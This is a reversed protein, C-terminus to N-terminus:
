QKLIEGVKQIEEGFKTWNGDRLAQMATDYAATAQTVQNSKQAQEGTIKETSTEKEPQELQQESQTGFIKALGAELTTEMVIKNEYAVIVRKLEPIKGAEAKLYLPRVYLLSEEIPIVLLPGQIVQSGRQDWLSIQRSIEADQNIRAIIQKPGYILQQKPFRYVELKGYNEGDNRAVMWAAMNDKGRPIFPLMLIFEEREKGPLKMIMHRPAMPPIDGTTTETEGEVAIAPIDWQDEKNYFNGPEDMHYTSYIASQATFIDEPYRIHALLAEPMASLPQFMDPFIEAYTNIIPDKQDALYYTIKGHYADIVVKAANRIYNTPQGNIILPRAYPYNNSITYADAIWYLKGDVIVSYPDQDFTLFPATKAMREKITRYYMVRSENTMDESLLVKIENFRLAFLARKFFSDIPVGGDGAYTTSVNEEGKPYDFEKTKTKVFVHDNSLEGYYIEPRTVALEQKEAVPPLNKVFLVPLGEATVQNVPGAAAGYGHTFILRENIWNKNPLNEASLERPSLMIQRPQGDIIYRDNDVSNFAYYTRIEQIQSFTSLLPGRDWLRVNKITLDNAAIDDATLPKDGSLEHKTVTQLGFADRTAAINQKIFPTEKALENPAVIFQQYLPPVFITAIGVLATLVISAFLPARKNTIGYVVALLASIGFLIALAKYLPILITVDSYAAGFVAGNDKTLLSFMGLYTKAAIAALLLAFLVTIHLRAGGQSSETREQKGLKKSLFHLIGFNGRLAYIIVCGILTLFLILWLLQLGIGAVPLTFLYFGIDNGFIPDIQGFPKQNLFLLVEQWFVSTILGSLVALLLSILTGIKKVVNGTLTMYQGLLQKPLFVLWPIKSKGAIWLNGSLFLFTFIGAALGLLFRTMLPKTFVETYGVEQFWWWDTLLSVGNNFFSILLFFGIIGFLGINGISM